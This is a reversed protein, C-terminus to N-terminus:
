VQVRIEDVDRGRGAFRNPWICFDGVSLAFPIGAVAGGDVFCGIWRYNLDIVLRARDIKM